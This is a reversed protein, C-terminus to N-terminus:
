QINHFFIIKKFFLLKKYKEFLIQFTNGKTFVAIKHIIYIKLDMKKYIKKM